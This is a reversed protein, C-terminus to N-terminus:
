VGSFECGQFGEINNSFKDKKVKFQEKRAKNRFSEIGMFGGMGQNMGQEMGGDMGQNIGQIDKQMTMDSETPMEVKPKVVETTDNNVLKKAIKDSEVEDIVPKTSKTTAVNYTLMSSISSFVVIVCIIIIIAAIVWGWWWCLSNEMTKGAVCTLDFLGLVISPISFLIVSGILMLRESLSLDNENFLVSLIIAIMAILIAIAAYQSQPTGTLLKSINKTIEM